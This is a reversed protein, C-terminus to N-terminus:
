DQYYLKLVYHVTLQKNEGMNLQCIQLLTLHIANLLYSPPIPSCEKTRLVETVDNFDYISVWNLIFPYFVFVFTWIWCSFLALLIFLVAFTELILNVSFPLFVTFIWTIWLILFICTILSFFHKLLTWLKVRAPLCWICETLSNGCLSHKCLSGSISFLPVYQKFQTVFFRSIIANKCQCIMWQSM